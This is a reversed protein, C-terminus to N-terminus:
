DIEHKVVGDIYFWHQQRKVFRSIEHMVFPQGAIVGFAKFEVKGKSDNAGGKQTNVIRLQQWITADDTLDLTKPRTNKDWTAQLYDANQMAFASYRSRMLAEATQPIQIHQHYPACCNAYDRQADCPCPTNTVQPNIM